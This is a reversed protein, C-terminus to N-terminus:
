TGEPDQVTQVCRSGLGVASSGPLVVRLECSWESLLFIELGSGLAGVSFKAAHLSRLVRGSSCQVHLLVQCM